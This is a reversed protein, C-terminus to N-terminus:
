AAPVVRTEEKFFTAAAIMARGLRQVLSARKRFRNVVPAGRKSEHVVSSSNSVPASSLSEFSPRWPPASPLRTMSLTDVPQESPAEVTSEKRSIVGQAPPIANLRSLLEAPSPRALVDAFCDRLLTSLDACSVRFSLRCGSCVAQAVAADELDQFPLTGGALLQWCLAAAAWIDSKASWTGFQFVEPATYRVVCNDLGSPEEFYQGRKSDLPRTWDFDCLVYRRENFVGVSRPSVCRYVLCVRALEDVASVVSRFAHFANDRMFNCDMDALMGRSPSVWISARRSMAKSYGLIRALHRSEGSLSAIARLVVIERAGIAAHLTILVMEVDRSRNWRGQWVEPEGPRRCLDLCLESWPIETLVAALEQDTSVETDVKEGAHSVAASDLQEGTGDRSYSEQKAISDGESDYGLDTSGMVPAAQDDNESCFSDSTDCSKAMGQKATAQELEIPACKSIEHKIAVLAASDSAPEPSASREDRLRGAVAGDRVTKVCTTGSSYGPVGSGVLENVLTAHLMAMEREHAERLERVQRAAQSVRSRENLARERVRTAEAEAQALIADRTCDAEQQMCEEEAKSPEIGGDAARALMLVIRRQQADTAQARLSRAKDLLEEVSNATSM